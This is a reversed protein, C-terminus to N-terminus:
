HLSLTRVPHFVDKRRRRRSRVPTRRLDTPVGEPGERVLSDDGQQGACEFTEADCSHGLDSPGSRAALAGAVRTALQGL